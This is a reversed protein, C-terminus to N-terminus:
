RCSLLALMIKRLAQLSWTNKNIADQSSTCGSSTQEKEGWLSTKVLKLLIFAKAPLCFLREQQHFPLAYVELILFVWSGLLTCHYPEDVQIIMNPGKPNQEQKPQKDKKKKEWAQPKKSVAEVWFSSSKTRKTTSKVCMKWTQSDEPSETMM